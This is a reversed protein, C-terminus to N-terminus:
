EACQEISLRIMGSPIRISFASASGVALVFPQALIFGLHFVCVMRQRHHLAIVDPFAGTDPRVRM